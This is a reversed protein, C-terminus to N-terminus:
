PDPLVSFQILIFFVAPFRFQAFAFPLPASRAPLSLQVRLSLGSLSPLSFASCASVSRFRLPLSSALGPFLRLNGTAIAPPIM